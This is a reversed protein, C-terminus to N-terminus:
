CRKWLIKKYIARWRFITKSQEKLSEVVKAGALDMGRKISLPNAGATVNKIGAAVTIPAEHGVKAIAQAILKGIEADNASISAVQAVEDEKDPNYAKSQEKLSEVAQAASWDM